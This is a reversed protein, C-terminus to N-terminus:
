IVARVVTIEIVWVNRRLLGSFVGYSLGHLLHVNLLDRCSASEGIDGDDDGDSNEPFREM